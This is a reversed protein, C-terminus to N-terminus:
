SFLERARRWRRARKSPRPRRWRHRQRQCSRGPFPRWASAAMGTSTAMGIRPSISAIYLPVASEVGLGVGFDDRLDATFDAADEDLFAVVHFRTLEERTRSSRWSRNWDAWVRGREGLRLPIEITLDFQM